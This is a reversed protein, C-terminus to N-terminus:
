LDESVTVTKLSFDDLTVGLIFYPSFQSREVLLFSDKLTLIQKIEECRKTSSIQAM